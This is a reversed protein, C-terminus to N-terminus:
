AARRLITLVPTSTKTQSIRNAADILAALEAGSYHTTVNGSKHGLLVQRDEHSINAARLRRGFTHKLDHVRVRGFGPHPNSGFEEAWKKAARKRASRWATDNMRHLARGEYPFVLTKHLGRQGDIVSKAVDNLIVIRDERNKVGSKESRGGFEPPIIFVSTNLEPVRVEWEWSLKCVEQERLGVNVKFLAMRELHPPLEKLLIRQEDWSLPYEPRKTKREDMMTLIPVADLWPRKQEDRWKRCCVNLVRTVRQLAINITRNSAPTRKKGNPLTYGRQRSQIFPKLAEDDIHTLPVSQVLTPFAIPFTVTSNVSATGWQRIVKGTKQYCLGTSFYDAFTLAASGGVIYWANVGNSALILHEGANVTISTVSNAGAGTYIVDTGARVVSAGAITSHLFVCNCDPVTNAAPLTQAVAANLEILKGVEALAISGAAAKGVIGALGARNLKVFEANAVAVGSTFRPATPATPTDTFAPSALPAKQALANTITTAFNADNGLAAALENLTDLAAPSANVLASIAAQLAAM